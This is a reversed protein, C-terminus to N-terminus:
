RTEGELKGARDSHVCARADTSQADVLDPGHDSSLKRVKLLVLRFNVGIRFKTQEYGFSQRQFGLGSPGDRKFVELIDKHVGSFM